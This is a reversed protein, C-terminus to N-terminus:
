VVSSQSLMTGPPTLGYKEELGMIPSSVTPSHPHIEIGDTELSVLTQKRSRLNTGQRYSKHSTQPYTARHRGVFSLCQEEAPVFGSSPVSHILPGSSM